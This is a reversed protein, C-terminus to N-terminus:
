VTILMTIMQSRRAEEDTDMCVGCGGCVVCECEESVHVEWGCVNWM